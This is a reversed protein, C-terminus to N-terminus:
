YSLSNPVVLFAEKFRQKRGKNSYIEAIIIYYGAKVKQGTENRANWRIEGTTGAKEHRIL